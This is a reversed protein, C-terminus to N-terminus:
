SATTFWRIYSTSHHKCFAREEKITPLNECNPFNQTIQLKRIFELAAGYVCVYCREQMPPFLLIFIKCGAAFTKQACHWNQALIIETFLGFVGEKLLEIVYTERQM